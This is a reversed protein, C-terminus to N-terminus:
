GHGGERGRRKEREEVEWGTRQRWRGVAKGRGWQLAWHKACSGAAMQMRRGMRGREGEKGSM